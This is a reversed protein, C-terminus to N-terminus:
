NDMDWVVIQGSDSGAACLTGDPSVAAACVKGIGWDFSRTETGASMDWVRVIGNAGASIIARGDLMFGIAYIYNPHGRLVAKERGDPMALLRIRLGYMVALTNGDPAFAFQTPDATGKPDAPSSLLGRNSADYVAMDRGGSAVFYRGCPSYAVRQFAFAGAFRHSAKLGSKKGKFLSVPWEGVGRGQAVALASSDPRFAVGEACWGADFAAVVAGTARNWVRAVAGNQLSALFQGDPSYAVARAYQTHGALKGALEGTAARWLTVFKSNGATTALEAGDPSFAMHRIRAKHAQWVLM